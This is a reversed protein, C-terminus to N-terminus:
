TLKRELFLFFLKFKYIDRSHSKRNISPLKYNYFLVKLHSNYHCLM